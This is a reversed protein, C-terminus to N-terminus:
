WEVCGDSAVAWAPVMSAGLVGCSSPSLYGDPIHMPTASEARVPPDNTRDARLLAEHEAGM